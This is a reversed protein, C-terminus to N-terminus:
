PSKPISRLLEDLRPGTAHTGCWHRIYEWDLVERQLFIVGRADDLDKPRAWRLKQVVVDEVTPIWVARAWGPYGVSVKRRFREKMHADDSVAFLEIYFTSGVVDITHRTSGTLIEFSSQSHLLFDKGLNGMLTDLWEPLSRVDVVVDADKTARPIGYFNTAFAGTLMYDIASADLAEVLRRLAQEGDM